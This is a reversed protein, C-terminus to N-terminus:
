QCLKQMKGTQKTDKVHTCGVREKPFNHTTEM